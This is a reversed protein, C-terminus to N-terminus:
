YMLFDANPYKQCHQKYKSDETGSFTKGCVFLMDQESAEKLEQAYM